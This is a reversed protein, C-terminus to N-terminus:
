NTEHRRCPQVIFEVEVVDVHMGHDFCLFAYTCVMYLESSYVGPTHSISTSPLFCWHSLVRPRLFNGDAIILIVLTILYIQIHSLSSLWSHSFQHHLSSCQLLVNSIEVHLSAMFVASRSPKILCEHSLSELLLKSSQLPYPPPSKEM